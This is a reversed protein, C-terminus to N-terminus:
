ESRWLSVIPSPPTPPAFLFFPGQCIWRLTKSVFGGSFVTGAGHSKAIWHFGICFHCLAPFFCGAAPWPDVRDWFLRWISNEDLFLRSILEETYPVVLHGWSYRTGTGHRDCDHFILPLAESCHPVSHQHTHYSLCMGGWGRQPIHWNTAIGFFGSRLFYVTSLELYAKPQSLGFSLLTLGAPTELDHARHM